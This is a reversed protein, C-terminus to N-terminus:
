EAEPTDAIVKKPRGVTKKVEETEVPTEDAVVEYDPHGKMSDIDVQHEFTVTNGSLLCKFTVSM